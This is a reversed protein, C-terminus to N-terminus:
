AGPAVQGFHAGNIQTKGGGFGGSKEVLHHAEGERCFVDGGQFAAGFAPNGAQLQSRKGQLSLLVGGAEDSREGAAVMEHQVIQHFFDEPLLGFADLREQQACRDEVAQAAGQTIGNQEVGRNGPLCGQFIEFAGVQEEDGQVVLPPPVAIVMEERIQQPLSQVLADGRRWPIFPLAHGFQVDTGAEPIFVMAQLHFRKVMRNSGIINLAGLAQHFALPHGQLKTARHDRDKLQSSDSGVVTSSALGENHTVYAEANDIVPWGVPTSSFSCAASAARCPASGSSLVRSRTPCMAAM